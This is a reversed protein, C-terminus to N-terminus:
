MVETSLIENAGSNVCNHKDSEKKKVEIKGHYFHYFYNSYFNLYNYENNIKLKFKRFSTVIHLKLVYIQLLYFQLIHTISVVKLKFENNFSM